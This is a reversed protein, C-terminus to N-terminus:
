GCVEPHIELLGQMQGLVGRGDDLFDGYRVRPLALLIVGLVEVVSDNLRVIVVAVEDNWQFLLVVVDM